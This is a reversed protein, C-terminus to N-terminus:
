GLTAAPYSRLRMPRLTSPHAHKAQRVKQREPFYHLGEIREGTTKEMLFRLKTIAREEIQRIRERTLGLQEGVAELTQEDQGGLGFRLALIKQERPTLQQLLWSIEQQNSVSEALDTSTSEDILLEALTTDDEDGIPQDLSAVSKTQSAYLHWAIITSVPEGMASAIEDETPARGLQAQLEQEVHQLRNVATGMYVPLRVMRSYDAVARSIAQRIWWTAHTSFRHGLQVDFRDVAKFLGLSGEQILDLLDMGRGIYHRAINVVLRLNALILHDRAARGREIRMELLARRGPLLFASTAKMQQAARGENIAFALAREQTASLLAYRGVQRLYWTTTDVSGDNEGEDGSITTTAVASPIDTTIAIGYERLRGLMWQESGFRHQVFEAYDTANISHSQHIQALMRGLSPEILWVVEEYQQHLLADNSYATCIVAAMLTEFPYRGLLRRFRVILPDDGQQVNMTRDDLVVLAILMEKLCRTDFQLKLRDLAARRQDNDDWSLIRELWGLTTTPLAALHVCAEDTTGIQIDRIYPANGPPMTPLNTSWTDRVIIGARYWGPAFTADPVDWTFTTEETDPLPVIYPTEWPRGLSWLALQRGQFNREETWRLDLLWQEDVLCNDLEQIHIGADQVIHLLPITLDGVQLVVRAAGSGRRRITDRAAALAFLMRTGRKSLQLTQEEGNCQVLVQVAVPWPAENTTLMLTPLPAREFAVGPESLCHTQWQVSHPQNGDEIYGWQLAPLTITFPLPTQLDEAAICHMQVQHVDSAAIVRWMGPAQCQVEVGNTLSEIGVDSAAHVIFTSTSLGGQQNPYRLPERGEIRLGPIFAFTLTTDRGLPGQLRATYNGLQSVPVSETLSIHLTGDVLSYCMATLPLDCILKGGALLRLNWREAEVEAARQGSIPIIIDPLRDPFIPQRAVIGDAHDLSNGVLRPLLMEADPEVPIVCNKLAIATATSLDWQEICMQQWTGIPDACRESCRGGWARFGDEKRYLLFLKKQPLADHWRLLAYTTADFALLPCDKTIGQIDWTRIYSNDVQFQIQYTQACPLTLHYATTQVGGAARYSDSDIEAIQDGDARVIWRISADQHEASGLQEPLELYVPAEAWPDISITPTHLHWRLAQPQIRRAPQSVCWTRYATIIRQPVGADDTAADMGEFHAHEAFSICRAVFDLAVKGGFRLFRGISKPGTQGHSTALWEDVYDSVMLNMEDGTYPALQIFKEFFYTLSANPLGAHFLITALYRHSVESSVQRFLPMDHAKLYEEFFQGIKQQHLATDAIGITEQVPEWFTHEHYSYIATAVLYMALCHPFQYQLEDFAPKWKGARRAVAALADGLLATETESIAIEGLLAVREAQKRLKEEWAQLEEM